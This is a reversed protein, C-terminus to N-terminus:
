FFFFSTVENNVDPVFHIKSPLLGAKFYKLSVRDGEVSERQGRVPRQEGPQEWSAWGGPGAETEGRSPM